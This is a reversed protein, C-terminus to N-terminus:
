PYLLIRLSRICCSNTKARSSKEVTERARRTEKALGSFSLYIYLWILPFTLCFFLAAFFPYEFKVFAHVNSLNATTMIRCEYVYLYKSRLQQQTHTDTHTHTHTHPTHTHTHQTHTHTHSHTHTHTHSLLSLMWMRRM